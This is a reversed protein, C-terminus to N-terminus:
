FFNWDRFEFVIMHEGRLIQIIQWGVVVIAYTRCAKANKAFKQHVDFRRIPHQLARNLIEGQHIM